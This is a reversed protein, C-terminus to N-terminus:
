AELVVSNLVIYKVELTVRHFKGIGDDNYHGNDNGNCNESCNDTDSNGMSIRRRSQLPRPIRRVRLRTRRGDRQKCQIQAGLRKPM